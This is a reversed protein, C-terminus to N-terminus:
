LARVSARFVDGRDKYDRFMDFSACAPAMLVTDGPQAIEKALFVAEEMSNARQVPRHDALVKRIKDSAEGLVIVKKVRGLFPILISFDGNKDRGGLILM